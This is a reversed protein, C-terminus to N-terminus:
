IVNGNKVTFKILKFLLIALSVFLTANNQLQMLFCFVLTLILPLSPHPSYWWSNSINIFSSPRLIMKSLKLLTGHMINLLKLTFGKKKKFIAPSFDTCSLIDMFRISGNGDKRSNYGLFMWMCLLDFMHRIFKHDM